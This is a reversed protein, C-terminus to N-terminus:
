SRRRRRILGAGLLGGGLLLLTAPEPIVTSPGDVKNWEEFGDNIGWDGGEGGFQNYLYFYQSTHGSFLNYPIYAAMDGGGSGPNLDYNLHVASDGAPPADLDYILTANLPNQLDALTNFNPSDAVFIMLRDLGLLPQPPNGSENIDLYLRLSLNGYPDLGSGLDSVLISHTWIGAKEDMTYPGDSNVGQESGGSGPGQVRLFPEIVGTGTPAINTQQFIAGNISGIANLTTLDLITASAPGVAMACLTAVFALSSIVRLTRM